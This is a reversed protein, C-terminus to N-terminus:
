KQYSEFFGDPEMKSRNRVLSLLSCPKGDSAPIAGQGKSGIRVLRDVVIASAPIGASRLVFMLCAAERM